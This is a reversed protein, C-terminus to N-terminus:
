PHRIRGPMQDISACNDPLATAVDRGSPLPAVPSAQHQRDRAWFRPVSGRRSSPAYAIAAPIRFVIETGFGPKSWVDLSGGIKEARERMGRLGFHGVPQDRGVAQEDFGKGDDRVSVRFRRGEYRIEAAINQAAAHRVANRLAEGAIRYIEDGVTPKLRRPTGQVAVRIAPPGDGRERTLGAVINRLSGAPDTTEVSLARLGQVAHRADTTAATAHDLARELRQRAEVPRQPLLQLATQFMLLIGQFSQLLTDHLERAIRTREDIRAAATLNLKMVVRRVHVRHATWFLGLISAACVAQFWRTEYYAPAIAFELVAGKKNWVGSNNSAQVLFRYQGHPLNSYYARRENVVEKWEPDQGELIYRFHVKEPAALWDRTCRGTLPSRSSTCRPRFHTSRCASPIWWVSAM